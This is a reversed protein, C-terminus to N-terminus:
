DLRKEMCVSEEVGAYPGYNEAMRRYGHKEYLRLAATQRTGTELMLRRYGLERAWGELETLIRGALGRGRASEAVYMRKVEATRTAFEKIAGCGVAKGQEDLLLVVHKIDDSGNYQDYFAHDDGDTVALFADLERILQPYAPHAPTTRLLTM